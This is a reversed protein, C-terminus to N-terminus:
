KKADLAAELERARGPDLVQLRVLIARADQLRNMEVYAEGLYEMAEPFNPRLRLAQDYAQIAEAPRGAHRLVFGLENWAEPFNPRLDVARRFDAAAAPFRQAAKNELGKNYEADASRPAVPATAPGSGVAFAPSVRGLLVVLTVAFALNAYRM